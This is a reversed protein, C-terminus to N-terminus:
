ENKGPLADKFHVILSETDHVKMDPSKALVHGTAEVKKPKRSNQVPPQSGNAAPKVDAPQLWVKLNDGQLYQAHEDDYFVGNGVLTMVELKGDPLWSFSDNWSAQLPRKATTNDLLRICGPGRALASQSGKQNM